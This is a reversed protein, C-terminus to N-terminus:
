GNTLEEYEADDRHKKMLRAWEDWDSSLPSSTWGCSCSLWFRNGPETHVTGDHFTFPAGTEDVVRCSLWRQGRALALVYRHHGDHVWLRGSHAIVHPARDGTEPDGGDLLHRLRAISVDPQTPTLDAVLISRLPINQWGDPHLRAIADTAYPYDTM